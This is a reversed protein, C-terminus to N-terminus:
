LVGQGDATFQVEEDDFDFSLGCEDCNTVNWPDTRDDGVADDPIEVIGGCRPCQVYYVILDGQPWAACLDPM